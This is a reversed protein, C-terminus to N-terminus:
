GPDREDLPGQLNVHHQQSLETFFATEAQVNSLNVDPAVLAATTVELEAPLPRALWRSLAVQEVLFDAKQETNSADNWLYPKIM